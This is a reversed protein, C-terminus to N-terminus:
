HDTASCDLNPMTPTKQINTTQTNTKTHIRSEINQGEQIQSKTVVLNPFDETMIAEFIEKDM